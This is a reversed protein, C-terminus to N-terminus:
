GSLGANRLSPKVNLRWSDAPAPAGYASVRPPETGAANDLATGASVQGNVEMVRRVIAIEDLAEVTAEAGAQVHRSAVHAVLGLLFAEVM